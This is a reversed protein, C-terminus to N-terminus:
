THCYKHWVPVPSRTLALCEKVKNDTLTGRWRALTTFWRCGIDYWLFAIRILAKVYYHLALLAYAHREGTTMRVATICM